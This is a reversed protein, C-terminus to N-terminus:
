GCPAYYFWTVNKGDTVTNLKIYRGDAAFGYMSVSVGAGPRKYEDLEGSTNFYRIDLGVDDVLSKLVVMPEEDNITEYSEYPIFVSQDRHVIVIDREDTLGFLGNTTVELHRLRTRLYVPADSGKAVKFTCTVLINTNQFM